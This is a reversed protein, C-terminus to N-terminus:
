LDSGLPTEDVIFAGHAFEWSSDFLLRLPVGCSLRYILDLHSRNLLNYARAGNEDWSAEGLWPRTDAQVGLKDYLNIVQGDVTHPTGDGCFDARVVRTCTQHYPALSAGGISQWPKYGWTVCKYLAGGGCAFTFQSTDAVHAGGGPVGSAYSWVGALPIAATVNGSDDTCLPGWTGDGRDYNVSYYYIDADPAPAQTVNAIQMKLSAGNDLTGTLRAGILEAGSLTAGSADEAILQAGVLRLNTLGAGGLSVGNLSTGNLNRGNLNRGNLNRGNLNRGNSVRDAHAVAAACIVITVVECLRRMCDM